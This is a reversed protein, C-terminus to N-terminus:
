ATEVGNEKWVMLTCTRKRRTEKECKGSIQCIQFVCMLPMEIMFICLICHFPTDILICKKKNNKMDRFNGNKEEKGKYSKRTGKSM